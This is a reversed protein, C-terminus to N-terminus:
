GTRARTMRELRERLSAEAPRAYLLVTDLSSHGLLSALGRLDNPNAELYRTAFTHRLVHPSVETLGARLAYKELIRNIGSPSRLPGRAGQWLPAEEEMDQDLRDLYARLARRVNAQLPIRRGGRGNHRRVILTGGAPELVVDGRRLALLEGVRIGTGLLLEVIAIDRLKATEHVAQLLRDEERPALIRPSPRPLPLCGVSRTPDRQVLERAAAWKFFRSLAALRRNVTRGAVGRKERLFTKYAEIERSGVSSVEPEAGVYEGYWRAFDYLDAAYGRVTNRAKGQQQLHDLWRLVPEPLDQAKV